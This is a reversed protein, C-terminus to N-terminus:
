LANSGRLFIQLFHQQGKGTIMPTVSLEKGHNTTIWCEKVTMIGKEIWIQMPERSQKFIYGNERLWKFLRKRGIEIGNEYLIKAMEGIMINNDSGSVQKGLEAMPRQEDIIRNKEELTRQMINLARALVMKEDDEEHVPIYGGTKRIQPLVQSYIWNQFDKAEEKKSQFICRYLNAENIYTMKTTRVSKCGYQNISTSCVEIQSLGAEDLRCKVMSPNALALIKCVDSLCFFVENKENQAIRIEGLNANAFIKIDM